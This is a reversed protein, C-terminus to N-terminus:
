RFERANERWRTVQLENSLRGLSTTKVTFNQQASEQTYRTVDRRSTGAYERPNVPTVDGDGLIVVATRRHRTLCSRGDRGVPSVGRLNPM